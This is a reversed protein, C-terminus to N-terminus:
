PGPRGITPNSPGAWLLRTLQTDCAGLLRARRLARSRRRVRGQSARWRSAPNPARGSLDSVSMSVTREGALDSSKSELSGVFFCESGRRTSPASGSTSWSAEIDGSSMPWSMPMESSSAPRFASRNRSKEVGKAGPRSRGATSANLPSTYAPICALVNPSRSKVSACFDIRM